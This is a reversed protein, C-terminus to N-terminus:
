GREGRLRALGRKYRDILQEDGIKQNERWAKVQEPSSEIRWAIEAVTEGQEHLGKAIQMRAWTHAVPERSARKFWDLFQSTSDVQDNHKGNPFVSMEHLYEVLWPAEGPLSVFGNEIMATQAHMRM